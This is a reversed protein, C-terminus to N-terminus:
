MVGALVKNKQMWIIFFVVTVILNLLLLLRIQKFFDSLTASQVLQKIVNNNIYTKLTSPNTAYTINDLNTSEMTMVIEKAPIERKVPICLGEHYDYAYKRMGKHWYRLTDDTIYIGDRYKFSGEEDLFAIVTDHDGNFLQFNAIIAKHGRFRNKLRTWLHFINTWKLGKKAPNYNEKPSKMAELRAIIAAEEAAEAAEKAQQTEMEEVEKKLQEITKKKAM